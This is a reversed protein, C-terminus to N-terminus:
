RPATMPAAGPQTHSLDFHGQNANTGQYDLQNFKDKYKFFITKGKISVAIPWSVNNTVTVPRSPDRGLIYNAEFGGKGSFTLRTGRETIVQDIPLYEFGLFQRDPYRTRIISGQRAPSGAKPEAGSAKFPWLRMLCLQRGSLAHWLNEMAARQPQDARADLLGLIGGPGDVGGIRVDKLKVREWSGEQVWYSWMTYCYDYPSPREGFNCACPASCTCAETFQGKIRWPRRAPKEQTFAIGVLAFALLIFASLVRNSRREEANM